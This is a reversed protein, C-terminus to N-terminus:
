SIREAVWAALDAEDADGDLVREVLEVAHAHERAFGVAKGNKALFGVMATVAVDGNVRPLFEEAALSIALAAAQDALPRLCLAGDPGAYPAFLAFLLRDGPVIRSLESATMGTELEAVTFYDSATFFEPTM